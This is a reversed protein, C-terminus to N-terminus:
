ILAEKGLEGTRIRYVNEVPTVFIKGDGVNGTACINLITNVLLDVEHDDVVLEVKVKPYLKIEYRTGRFMGEQGKQQGCGAVESITMGKVGKQDLTDRLDQFKEPRIIAEIKKM